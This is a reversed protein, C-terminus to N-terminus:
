SRVARLAVFPNWLFKPRPDVRPNISIVRFSLVIRIQKSSGRQDANIGRELQM